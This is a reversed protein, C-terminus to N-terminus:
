DYTGSVALIATWDQLLGRSCDVIELALIRGRERTNGAKFVERKNDEGDEGRTKVIGSIIVYLLYRRNM